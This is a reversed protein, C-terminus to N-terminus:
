WVHWKLQMKMQNPVAMQLSYERLIKELDKQHEEYTRSHYKKLDKLILEVVLTTEEDLASTPEDLLILRSPSALCAWSSLLQFQGGSLSDVRKKSLAM